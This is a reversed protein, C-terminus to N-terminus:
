VIFLPVRLTGLRLVFVIQLPDFVVDRFAMWDDYCAIVWLAIHLFIIM